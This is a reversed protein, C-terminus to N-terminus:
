ELEDYKKQLMDMMRQIPENDKDERLVFNCQKYAWSYYYKSIEKDKNRFLSGAHLCVISFELIRDSLAKFDHPHNSDYANLNFRTCYMLVEDYIRKAGYWDDNRALSDARQRYTKLLYQAENIRTSLKNYMSGSPPIHDLTKLAKELDHDNTYFMGKVYWPVSDNPYTGCVEDLLAEFDLREITSREIGYYSFYITYNEMRPELRKEFIDLVVDPSLEKPLIVRVTSDMLNSVGSKLEKPVIVTKIHYPKVLCSECSKDYLVGGISCFDTNDPHVSFSDISAAFSYYGDTRFLEEMTFGDDQPAKVPKPIYFVNLLAPNNEWAKISDDWNRYRLATAWYCKTTDASFLVNNLVVFDKNQPSVQVSSFPPSLRWPMEYGTLRKVTAPLYLSLGEGNQELECNVMWADGVEEIGEPLVINNKDFFVGTLAGNKIVKLSKPLNVSVGDFRRYSILGEGIYRITNPFKVKEIFSNMFLVEGDSEEVDAVGQPNDILQHNENYSSDRSFVPKLPSDPDFAESCIKTVTYTKGEHKVKEPITVTVPVDGMEECHVMSLEANDLIHYYLIYDKYSVGFDPFAEYHDKIYDLDQYYEPLEYGRLTVNDLLRKALQRRTNYDVRDKGISMSSLEMLADSNDLKASERLCAIAEEPKSNSLWCYKKYLIKGLKVEVERIADASWQPFHKTGVELEARYMDELSNFLELLEAEDFEDDAQCLQIHQELLTITRRHQRIQEEYASAATFLNQNRDRAQKNLDMQRGIERARDFDSHLVCQRWEYELSDITTEDVYAFLVARLRIAKLEDQYDKELKQLEKKMEERNQQELERRQRDYKAKMERVYAATYVAQTYDLSDKQYLVIELTAQPSLNWDNIKDANFVVYKKNGITISYGKITDGAHARAFQLQFTGNQGRGQNTTTGAGEFRLEVPNTYTTKPQRGHYELTVGRQTIQASAFISIILSCISLIIRRKM